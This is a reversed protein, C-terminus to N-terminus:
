IFLLSAVMVGLSVGAALVGVVVKVVGQVVRGGPGTTGEAVQQTGEGGVMQVQQEAEPNLPEVRQEVGPTLPTVSQVTAENAAVAPLVLGLGLVALALVWRM